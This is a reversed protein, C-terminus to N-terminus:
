SHRLFGHYVNSTDLFFGTIEGVLNNSSPTTGQGSSTGAGPADFTAITGDLARVYGHFARNSDLLVGM